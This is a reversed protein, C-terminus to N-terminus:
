TSCRTLWFRLEMAATLPAVATTTPCDYVYVTVPCVAVFPYPCSTAEGNKSGDMKSTSPTVSVYLM